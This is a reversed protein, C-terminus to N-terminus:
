DPHSLAWYADRLADIVNSSEEEQVTRPDLLVAEHEIRGIVPPDHRRLRAALDTATAGHADAPRLALVFTPVQEGPLSGGGVTSQAAEVAGAGIASRWAEARGRLTEPPSAIMRWIPIATEAEDQLYHRLTAALGALTAKDPRLVRALPHRKMRDVAAKRGVVIGAQPGGLLKDGSFCVVDAGAAVSDQPIPEHALGFRSTDLLCGSGLDDILLAGATTAVARLEGLTTEKTFGVIRFNSSHM